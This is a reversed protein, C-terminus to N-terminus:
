PGNVEIVEDRMWILIKDLDQATLSRVNLIAVRLHGGKVSSSSPNARPRRWTGSDYDLPRHLNTGDLAGSELGGPPSPPGGEEHRRMNLNAPPTLGLEGSLVM